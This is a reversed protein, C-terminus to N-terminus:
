GQPAIGELHARTLETAARLIKMAHQSRVSPSVSDATRTVADFFSRFIHLREADAAATFYGEPADKERNPSGTPRLFRM